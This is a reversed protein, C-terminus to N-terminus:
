NVITHSLPTAVGPTSTEVNYSLSAMTQAPPRTGDPQAWVHLTGTQNAQLNVTPVNGVTPTGGASPPGATDFWVRVAYSPTASAVVTLAACFFTFWVRSLKM